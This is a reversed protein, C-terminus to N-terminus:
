IFCTTSVGGGSPNPNNLQHCLHSIGSSLFGTGSLLGATLVCPFQGDSIAVSPSFLHVRSEDRISPPFQSKWLLSIHTSGPLSKSKEWIRLYLAMKWIKRSGTEREKCQLKEVNDRVSRQALSDKTTWRQGMCQPTNMPMAPSQARSILLGREEPQQRLFCTKAHQGLDVAPM